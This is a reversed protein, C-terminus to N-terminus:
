FANMTTAAKKSFSFQVQRCYGVRQKLKRICQFENESMLDSMVFRKFARDFMEQIKDFDKLKLDKLKYGEMNKLYNCMIKRQQAQTPPKNWKEEARKAAFHKRRKELLQVFLTAKEEDTLEKQEQAQLREALQYDANIKAQVDDWTKILAINAEQEKQARERALREAEDFEDQLRKATEEDLMIQDKKKAKVPEKVMKGKDKDEEGDLANVDFMEVDYQDNVLTIDKDADIRGQKSADKGLSEEDGSSEIRTQATTDRM